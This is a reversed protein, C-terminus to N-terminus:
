GRRCLAGAGGGGGERKGGGGGRERKGGGRGRERARERKEVNAAAWGGVKEDSVRRMEGLEAAAGWGVGVGLGGVGVGGWGVGGWGWM